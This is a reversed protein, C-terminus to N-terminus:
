PLSKSVPLIEYTREVWEMGSTDKQVDPFM